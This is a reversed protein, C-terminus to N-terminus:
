DTYQTPDRFSCLKLSTNDAELSNYNTIQTMSSIIDLKIGNKIVEESKFELIIPEGKTHILHFEGGIRGGDKKPLIIWGYGNGALSCVWTFNSGQLLRENGKSGLLAYKISFHFDNSKLVVGTDIWQTGTSELYEVPTYDSPLGNPRIYKFQGTGANYFNKRTVLDFMCPTGTKDLSPILHIQITKSKWSKFLYLRMNAAADLINYGYTNQLAVFIGIPNNESGKSFDINNAYIIDNCSIEGSLADFKYKTRDQIELSNNRDGFLVNQGFVTARIINPSNVYNATELIQYQINTGWYGFTKQYNSDNTIRLSTYDIELSLDKTSVNPIIYQTGSSELYEVKTSGYPVSTKLVQTKASSQKRRLM